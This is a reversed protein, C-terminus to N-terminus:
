RWEPLRRRRQVLYSRRNQELVSPRPKQFPGSNQWPSLNKLYNWARESLSSLERVRGLPMLLFIRSVLWNKGAASSGKVLANLPRRLLRSVVVILLVLANKKEGVLGAKEEALLFENFFLPSALLKRAEGRAKSGEEPKTKRM